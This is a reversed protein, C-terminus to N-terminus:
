FLDDNVCRWELWEQRFLEMFLKLKKVTVRANKRRTDRMAASILLSVPVILKSALLSDGFSILKFEVPKPIPTLGEAFRWTAPLAMMVVLRNIAVLEPDLLRLREPVRPNEESDRFLLPLIEPLLLKYKISVPPVPFISSLSGKGM